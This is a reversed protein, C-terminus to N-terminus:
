AGLSGAVANPRMEGDVLKLLPTYLLINSLQVDKLAAGSSGALM